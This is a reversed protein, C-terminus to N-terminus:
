TISRNSGHLRAFRRETAEVEDDKLTKVAEVDVEKPPKM